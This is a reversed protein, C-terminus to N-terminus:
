LSPLLRSAFVSVSLYCKTMISKAGRENPTNQVDAESCISAGNTEYVSWSDCAQQRIQIEAHKAIHHLFQLATATSNAHWPNLWRFPSSFLGHNTSRKRHYPQVSVNAPSEASANVQVPVLKAPATVSKSPLGESYQNIWRRLLNSNIGHALAVASVSTGPQCLAVLGQKFEPTHRRRRCIPLSTSM